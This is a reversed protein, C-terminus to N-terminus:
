FLYTVGNYSFTYNKEDQFDWLSQKDGKKFDAYFSDKRSQVYAKLYDSLFRGREGFNTGYYDLVEDLTIPVKTLIIKRAHANAYRAIANCIFLWNVMKQTHTTPGHLRFEVTNRNTFIANMFNLWYYRNHRNWKQAVPHQKTKRNYNVDAHYGESLWSFLVNYADNIYANFKEKDMGPSPTMIDLTPLKQNYNKKKIGDPNTKYFPFMQFIENQLKCALRYLSILYMRTTPLNGLHIHLSCNMSLSTRKSLEKGLNAITQLGKAGSMPITVFEPGPKGNEDNLSGDRCIVVGLQNQLPESLYGKACEAEFGFTTQGLMRGFYRVDKSMEPNFKEYLEVKRKFDEANDEINYGQRTNDVENTPTQAKKSSLQSSHHWVGTSFHELYGNQILIDPNIAHITGYDKHRVICNKYYNPTFRGTVATGNKFDVIGTRLYPAKKTLFIAGTEYDKEILGSSMRYWLGDVLFCDKGIRYYEGKIKRCVDRYETEGTFTTITKKLLNPNDQFFILNDM